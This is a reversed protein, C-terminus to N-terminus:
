AAAPRGAHHGPDDELFRWAAVLGIACMSAAVAFTRAPGLHTWLYGTVLAGVAGGVGYAISSYLAQGRGQHRGVFYRHVYQVAAAHHMGFTAAHLLQALTHKMGARVRLVHLAIPVAELDRTALTPAGGAEAFRELASRRGFAYDWPQHTILHSAQRGWVVFRAVHHNVRSDPWTRLLEVLAGNDRASRATRADFPPLKQLLEAEVDPALEGKGVEDYHDPCAAYMLLSGSEGVADKLALHIQDPGGAVPGVARVSAHVMLLDGDRISLARAHAALDRRSHM